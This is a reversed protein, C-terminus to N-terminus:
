MGQQYNVLAIVISTNITVPLIVCPYFQAKTYNLPLNKYKFKIM